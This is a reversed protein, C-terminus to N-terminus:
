TTPAPGVTRTAGVWWALVTLVTYAALAQVSDSAPAPDVLFAPAPALWQVLQFAVTIVALTGLTARGHWDLSRTRDHFLALAVFVLSLELPMELFPHDWLRWGLKVGAGALTLDPAHVILDLPWHSAVVAAGIWAGAANGTALRYVLAFGAAWGLTGLLSHTYPMDYLDFPLMVTLGPSLAYHEVGILAFLFSALDVLQAAVFLPGLKPARPLTAAALAPAYHGIFM